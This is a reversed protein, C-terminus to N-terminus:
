EGNPDAIASFMDRSFQYLNQGVQSIVYEGPGVMVTGNSGTVPIFMERQINEDKFQDPNTCPWDPSQWPGCGTLALLLVCMMGIFWRSPRSTNM